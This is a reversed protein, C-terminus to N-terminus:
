PLGSGRPEAFTATGLSELRIVDGALPAETSKSGAVPLRRLVDAGDGDAGGVAGDRDHVAGVGRLDTALGDDQGRVVGNPCTRAVPAVPLMSQAQVYSALAVAVARPNAFM